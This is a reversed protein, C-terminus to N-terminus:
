NRSLHEKIIRAVEFDGQKEAYADFSYGKRTGTADAGLSLLREIFQPDAGGQDLEIKLSMTNFRTDEELVDGRYALEFGKFLVEPDTDKELLYVGDMFLSSKRLKELFMRVEEPLEIGLMILTRVVQKVALYIEVKAPNMHFGCHIDSFSSRFFAPLNPGKSNADVLEFFWPATRESAVDMFVSFSEILESNDTPIGQSAKEWTIRNHDFIRKKLKAFNWDNPFRNVYTYISRLPIRQDILLVELRSWDEVLVLASPVFSQIHDPIPGAGSNMYEPWFKALLKEAGRKASVRFRRGSFDPNILWDVISKHFPRITDNEVPFLGGLNALSDDIEYDDWELVSAALSLPLSFNVVTMLELLPRVNQRYCTEDTFQRVFYHGYLSTLGDPFAGTDKLSLRGEEIEILIHKLYLISGASRKALTDLLASSYAEGIDCLKQRTFERLDTVNSESDQQMVMPELPAMLRLVEPDPRSTVVLGFWKPLRNFGDTILSIFHSSQEINLEDLADIVFVLPKDSHIRRLPRLFLLDFLSILSNEFKDELVHEIDRQELLYSRYETLQTSLQYALTCLIRRPDSRLRDRYQCFHIGVVSPESHAMMASIASKGFGADAVMFFVRSSENNGLWSHFEEFVWKRGVFGHIHKEIEVGFDLPDLSNLLSAQQGEFDLVCEGKLAELLTAFQKQYRHESVGSTSLDELNQMDLWQLRSICLPPEVFNVMIPIINKGKFRAYALEDLCVGDPRRMSHPTMLAIVSHTKEIGLEIAIQWDNTPRIGDEDMWVEFGLAELDQKLRRAIDAYEDHGYSLFIKSPTSAVDM